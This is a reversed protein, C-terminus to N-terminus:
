RDAALAQAIVDILRLTAVAGSENGIRRRGERGMQDTVHAVCLVDRGRARAFAYLAASEMDVALIGGRPASRDGGRDRPVTCRDDM